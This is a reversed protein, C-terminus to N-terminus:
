TGALPNPGGELMTSGARAAGVRRVAHPVTRIVDPAVRIVSM